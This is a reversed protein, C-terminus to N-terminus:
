ATLTFAQKADQSLHSLVAKGETHILSDTDLSGLSTKGTHSEHPAPASYALQLAPCGPLRGPQFRAPISLALTSATHITQSSHQQLTGPNSLLTHPARACAQPTTCHSCNQTNTAHLSCCLATFQSSRKYTLTAHSTM